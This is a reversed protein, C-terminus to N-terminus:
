TPMTLSLVTGTASASTHKVTFRWLRAAKKVAAVEADKIQHRKISDQHQALQEKKIQEASPKMLYFSGFVILM